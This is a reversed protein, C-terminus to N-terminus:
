RGSEIVMHKLTLLFGPQAALEELTIHMRYNWYHDPDAPNNIREEKPNEKRLGDDMALLDQLLFVAWMAPSQLHQKVIDRCIWPEAYFPADGNHGLQSNYFQQISAKDEEWWERLTAMDHTGPTVVSLYPSFAPNSFTEGAKKPMRQVELALMQLNDLVSEVMAPVMGLDEACILMDTSNKLATLKKLGEEEWLQN